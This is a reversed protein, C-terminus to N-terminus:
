NQNIYQRIKKFAAEDIELLATDKKFSRNISANELFTTTIGSVLNAGSKNTFYNVGNNKFIEGIIRSTTTKGNTGTVMIITINKSLEKIINPYLKQSIKGPLTTGGKGLFRLIKIIFKSFLIVFSLYIDKM